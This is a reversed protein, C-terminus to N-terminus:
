SEAGAAKAQTGSHRAIVCFRKRCRVKMGMDAQSGVTHGICVACKEAPPSSRWDSRCAPDLM